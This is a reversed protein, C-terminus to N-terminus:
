KKCHHNYLIACATLKLYTIQEILWASSIQCLANQEHAQSIVIYLSNIHM